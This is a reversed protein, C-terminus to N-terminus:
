VEVKCTLKKFSAVRQPYMQNGVETIGIDMQVNAVSKFKKSLHDLVINEVEKQSLEVIMEM